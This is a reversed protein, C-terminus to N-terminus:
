VAEEPVATRARRAPWGEFGSLDAVLPLACRHCESKRQPVGTRPLVATDHVRLRQHQETAISGYLRCSGNELQIPRVARITLVSRPRKATAPADVQFLERM